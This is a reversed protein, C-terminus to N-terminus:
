LLEMAAVQLRRSLPPPDIVSARHLARPREPRLPREQSRQWRPRTASGASL